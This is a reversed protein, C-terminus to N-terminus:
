FERLNRLYRITEPIQQGHLPSEDEIFYHKIGAKKAAKMIEPINLQGTGVAVDNEVATLGTDNREVGKRLDKVHMLKMRDAYKLILKAPDAGGFYAWMIDIEISVTAPNWNKMMYDFLTGNEYPKFEYGHIHYCFTLGSDRITKGAKNFVQIAKQADATEFTKGHPIWATMIYSAGLLKAENIFAKLKSDDQLTEFSTGTSRIHIGQEELLRRTEVATYGKVTGGEYETIGLNKITDFVALPNAWSNRYTYAQVGIPATFLAASSQRAVKCQPGSLVWLIVFAAIPKM